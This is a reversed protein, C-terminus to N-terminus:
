CDDFSRINTRKLCPIPSPPVFARPNAWPRVIHTEGLFRLFETTKIASPDCRDFRSGSIYICFRRFATCYKEFACVAAQVTLKACWALYINRMYAHKAAHAGLTRSSREGHTQNGGGCRVYYRLRQEQLWVLLAMAVFIVLFPVSVITSATM